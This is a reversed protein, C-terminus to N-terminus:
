SPHISPFCSLFVAGSADDWGVVPCFCGLATGICRYANHDMKKAGKDLISKIKAPELREGDRGIAKELKKAWEKAFERNYSGVKELLWPSPVLGAWSASHAENM